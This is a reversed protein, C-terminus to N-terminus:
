RMPSPIIGVLGTVGNVEVDMRGGDSAGVEVGQDGGFGLLGFGELGM